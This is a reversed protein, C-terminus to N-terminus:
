RKTSCNVAAPGCCNSWAPAIISITGSGAPTSCRSTTTARLRDTRAAPSQSVPAARRRRRGRGRGPLLRPNRPAPAGARGRQAEHQTLATIDYVWLVRKGGAFSVHGGRYAVQVYSLLLHVLAGKKTRWIVKENLVQGGHDQLQEIIRTRQDLDHWFLRTDCLHSNTRATDSSKACARMTSYCGDTRMWSRSAAPCFELLERLQREHAAEAGPAAGDNGATSQGTGSSM